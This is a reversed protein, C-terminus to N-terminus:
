VIFSILKNYSISSRFDRFKKNGVFFWKIHGITSLAKKIKFKLKINEFLFSLVYKLHILYYSIFFVCFAITVTFFAFIDVQPM